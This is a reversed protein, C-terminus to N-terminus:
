KQSIRQRWWASARWPDRHALPDPLTRHLFEEDLPTVLGALDARARPPLRRLAEDLVDRAEHDECIPCGASWSIYLYRGPRRLLNRYRILADAVANRWLHQSEMRDIAFRTRSSIGDIPRIRERSKQRLTARVAGPPRRGM